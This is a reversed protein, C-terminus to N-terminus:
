RRTLKNFRALFEKKAQRPTWPDILINYYPEPVLFSPTFLASMEDKCIAHDAFFVEEPITKPKLKYHEVILRMIKKEWKYYDTMEHKFASPIDNVYAESADHFLAWLAHEPLVLKSVLVSHQAVSYFKSVHGAYRCMNSLAHAIDTIHIDDTTMNRPDIIRGTFTQFLHKSPLSKLEEKARALLM